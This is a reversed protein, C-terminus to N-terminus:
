AYDRVELVRTTPATAGLRERLALRTPDVLFSEYGTRSGFRIVQVETAGDAAGMRRELVGDHQSLLALVEDEYRRGAEAEGDAMEVVAVLLLGDEDPGTV